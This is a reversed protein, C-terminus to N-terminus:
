YVWWGHLKKALANMVVATEDSTLSLTETSVHKAAWEKFGIMVPLKNDYDHLVNAIVHNFERFLASNMGINRNLHLFMYVARITELAKDEQRALLSLRYSVVFIIMALFAPLAIQALVFVNTLRVENCLAMGISVGIFILGAWLALKSYQRFIM